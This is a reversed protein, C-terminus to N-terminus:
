GTGRGKKRFLLLLSTAAVVVAVVAIIIAIGLQGRLADVEKQLDVVVTGPDYGTAWVSRQQESSEDNSIWAVVARGERDIGGRVLFYISNLASKDLREWGTWGTSPSYRTAYAHEVEEGELKIFATAIGHMGQSFDIYPWAISDVGELSISEIPGFNGQDFTRYQWEQFSLNNNSWLVMGKGDPALSVDPCMSFMGDERNLAIPQTWASGDFYTAHVDLLGTTGNVFSYALLTRGREDTDMHADPAGLGVEEGNVDAMASWGIVADYTCFKLRGDYNNPSVEIRERFVVLSDGQPGIGVMPDDHVNVSDVLSETASWGSEPSYASAWVVSNSGVRGAWAAVAGGDAGIAVDSSYIQTAPETGLQVPEQWGSGPKYIAVTPIVIGGSVKLWIAIAEGRDNIDVNHIYTDRDVSGLMMGDSWGTVPDYLAVWSSTRAKASDFCDWGAIALGTEAVDVELDMVRTPYGVSLREEAGWGAADVHGMPFLLTFM